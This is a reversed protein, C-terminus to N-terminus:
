QFTLQNIVRRLRAAHAHTIFIHPHVCRQKALFYMGTGTHSRIWNYKTSITHRAAHSRVHGYTKQKCLTLVRRRTVTHLGQFTRRTGVALATAHTFPNHPSSCPSSSTKQSSSAWRSSTCCKVRLCLARVAAVAGCVCRRNMVATNVHICGCTTSPFPAHLLMHQGALWRVSVAPQSYASGSFRM